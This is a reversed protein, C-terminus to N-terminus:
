PLNSGDVSDVYEVTKFAELDEGALPLRLSDVERNDCDAPINTVTGSVNEIGYYLFDFSTPDSPGTECYYALAVNPTIREGAKVVATWQHDAYFEGGPLRIRLQNVNIPGHCHEPVVCIARFEFDTSEENEISVIRYLRFFGNVEMLDNSGGGADIIGTIKGTNLTDTYGFRIDSCGAMLLSAALVVVFRSMHM